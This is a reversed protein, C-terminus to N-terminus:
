LASGATADCGPLLARFREAVAAALPDRIVVHQDRWAELLLNRIAVDYDPLSYGVVVWTQAARLIRCAEAWVPDLWRPPTTEPIPAVIAPTADLRYSRRLDQWVKLGPAVNNRDGWLEWNLSGHLKALPVKGILEVTAPRSGDRQPWPLPTGHAIQPRPLGAYHFGTIPWGRIPRPRLVREALLDYNSTVVGLLSETSLGELLRRHAGVRSPTTLREFNRPSSGGRAGTTHESLRAALYQAVWPWPLTAGPLMNAAATPVQGLYASHLFTSIDDGNRVRWADWSTLVEEIRRGQEDSVVWIHGDMLGSTAPLGGAVAFGAGLFLAVSTSVIAM